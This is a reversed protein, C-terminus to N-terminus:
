KTLKSIEKRQMALQKKLQGNERQYTDRSAKVAGLEAELTKVHTRLSAITDAAATKEEETVPMAEVALRDKLADNEDSLTRITDCLEATRDDDDDPIPTTVTVVGKPTPKTTVTVVGKPELEKRIKGVFPHTVHCHKAIQNDSWESWTADTLLIGVAKRKDANTLRIGHTGNAGASYLLADRKTGDAVDAVIEPIEAVRHAHFRHFGDALWNRVGDFFVKVPPFKAGCRMAEAYEEVVSTNIEERQQTEGDIAIDTLKITKM